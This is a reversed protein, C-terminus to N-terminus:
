SLKMGARTALYSTLAVDLPTSTDIPVYDIRDARCGHRIEGLFEELEEM